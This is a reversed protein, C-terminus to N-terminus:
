NVLLLLLWTLISFMKITRFYAENEKLFIYTRTQKKHYQAPIHCVNCSEQRIWGKQVGQVIATFQKSSNAMKVPAASVLSSIFRGVNIWLLHITRAGILLINITHWLWNDLWFGWWLLVIVILAECLLVGIYDENSSLLDFWLGSRRRNSQETQHVLLDTQDRCTWLRDMFEVKNILSSLKPYNM